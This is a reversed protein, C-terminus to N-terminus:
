AWKKLKEDVAEFTEILKAGTSGVIEKMSKAIMEQERKLKLELKHVYVNRAYIEVINRLTPTDVECEQDLPNNIVRTKKCQIFLTTTNGTIQADCTEEHIARNLLKLYRSGNSFGVDSVLFDELLRLEDSLKM